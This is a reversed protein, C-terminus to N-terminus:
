SIAPHEPEVSSALAQFQRVFEAIGRSDHAEM